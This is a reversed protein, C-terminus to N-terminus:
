VPYKANNKQLYVLIKIKTKWKPVVIFDAVAVFPLLFKVVWGGSLIYLIKKSLHVGNKPM